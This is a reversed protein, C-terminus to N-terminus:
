FRYKLIFFLEKPDVADDSTIETINLSISKIISMHCCIKYTIKLTDFELSKSGLAESRGEEPIHSTV